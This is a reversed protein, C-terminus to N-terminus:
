RNSLTQVTKALAEAFEPLEESTTERGISIRLSGKARVESLGMALLVHSTTAATSSCASGSSLAFGLADLHALLRQSDHGPLSINLTNPLTNIAPSNRVAGIGANDIRRWLDDLLRRQRESEASCEGAALEAAETFAAIAVPDETGARLGREQGGGTIEPDIWAGDRKYLIGIGKPGHLKHATFSAFDVGWERVDVAVRGLAQIADTHVLAASNEHVIGAIEKVPNISGVENNAAIISVLVTEARLSSRLLEMDIRAEGDVPLVTLEFKETDRLHLATDLVAKHEAASIILHNGRGQRRAAHCVGRLALNASESGGSTYVIDDPKEANILRALRRRAKEIVYRADTGFRHPSNPNGLPKELLQGILARVEERVPTTANYDLYGRMM